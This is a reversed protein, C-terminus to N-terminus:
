AGPCNGSNKLAEFVRCTAARKCRACRRNRRACDRRARPRGAPKERTNAGYPQPDAERTQATTRRPTSKGPVPTQRRTRRSVRARLEDTLCCIFPRAHLSANPAALSSGTGREPNCFLQRRRRTILPAALGPTRYQDVVPERARLAAYAAATTALQLPLHACCSRHGRWTRAPM